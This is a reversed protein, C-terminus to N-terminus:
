RQFWGKNIIFRLSLSSLVWLSPMPILFPLPQQQELLAAGAVSGAKVQEHMGEEEEDEM